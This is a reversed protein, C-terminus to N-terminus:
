SCVIREYEPSFFMKEWAAEEDERCRQELRLKRLDVKSVKQPSFLNADSLNLKLILFTLRVIGQLYSIDFNSNTAWM